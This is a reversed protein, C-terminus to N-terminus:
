TASSILPRTGCAHEIYVSASSALRQWVCVCLPFLQASLASDEEMRELGINLAHWFHPLSASTLLLIGAIM